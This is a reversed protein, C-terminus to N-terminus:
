SSGLGLYVESSTVLPLILSNDSGFAAKLPVTLFLEALLGMLLPTIVGLFIAFYLVTACDKFFKRAMDVIVPSEVAPWGETSFTHSKAIAWDQIYWLSNIIYAGTVFSYVDHVQTQAVLAFISRGMLVLLCSLLSLLKTNTDITGM